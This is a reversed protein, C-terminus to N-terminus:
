VTITSRSKNTATLKVEHGHTEAAQLPEAVHVLKDV